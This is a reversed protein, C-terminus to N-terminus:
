TRAQLKGNIKSLADEVARRVEAELAMQLVPMVERLHMELLDQASRRLHAEIQPTIRDIVSQTLDVPDIGAALSSSAPTSAGSRAYPAATDTPQKGSQVVPRVPKVVETLTPVYRPTSAM